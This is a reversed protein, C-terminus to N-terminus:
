IALHEAVIAALEAGRIESTETALTERYAHECLEEREDDHRVWWDITDAIEEDSSSEEVVVMKDRYWEQPDAAPLDGVLLTKSALSELYRPTIAATDVHEVVVEPQELSYFPRDMQARSPSHDLYQTVITAGPRGGHSSATPSVKAAALAPAYEFQNSLPNSEIGIATLDLVKWGYRPAHERVIRNFRQRNPYDPTESGSLLVDFQKPGRPHFISTEVGPRQVVKPIEPALKEFLALGSLHRLVILPRPQSRLIELVSLPRQWYDHGIWVFATEAGWQVGGLTPNCCLAQEDFTIVANPGPAAALARAHAYLDREWSVVKAHRELHHFQANQYSVAMTGLEELSSREWCVGVTPTM